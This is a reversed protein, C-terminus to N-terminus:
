RAASRLGSPRKRGSVSGLPAAHPATTLRERLRRSEHTGRRLDLVMPVDNLLALGLYTVYYYYDYFYTTPRVESVCLDLPAAKPGKPLRETRVKYARLDGEVEALADLM